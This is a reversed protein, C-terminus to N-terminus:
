DTLLWELVFAAIGLAILGPALGLLVWVGAVILALGVVSLPGAPLKLDSVKKM